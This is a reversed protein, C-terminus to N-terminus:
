GKRSEEKRSAKKSADEKKRIKEILELVKKCGNSEEAEKMRVIYDQRNEYIKEIALLLGDRDIEEEQLMESFGRAAFARANLIQDGRSAKKPLPVLINPKALALIECIANAGARSIILDALALYDKLEDYVYEFQRYDKVDSLEAALNDKGCVHIVCYKKLVESLNERLIGNLARSGLSGGMLLIVPKQPSFGLSERARQADGELLERRIPSGTCVSKEGPLYSLTEPFNCCIADAARFCIRNALGPTMDSEHVIVPINLHSAALVVPVTVFGGKSFVIDPKKKKLIGRAEWYGKLVKFPDTFNKWDFYRRLKGSAIGEYPLGIGEILQKEMGRYAGIYSISYGQKELEPVLAINPTVHGATGGGTLVITKGM